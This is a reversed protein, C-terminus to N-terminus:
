SAAEPGDLKVTMGQTGKRATVIEFDETGLTEEAHITEPAVQFFDGPELEASENGEAGWRFRSRGRVVYGAIEYPGHHHWGTKTGPPSIALGITVEPQSSLLSFVPTRKIGDVSSATPELKDAKIVKIGTATLNM